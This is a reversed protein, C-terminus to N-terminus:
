SWRGQSRRGGGRLDGRLDEEVAGSIMRWRGQSRRGGARVSTPTLPPLADMEPSGPRSPRRRRRRWRPVARGPVEVAERVRQLPHNMVMLQLQGKMVTLKRLAM